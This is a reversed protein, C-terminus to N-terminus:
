WCVGPIRFNSRISVCRVTRTLGVWVYLLAAMFVTSSSRVEVSPIHPRWFVNSM